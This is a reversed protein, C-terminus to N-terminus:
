WWLDDENVIRIKKKKKKKQKSPNKFFHDDVKFQALKKEYGVAEDRQQQLIELESMDTEKKRM